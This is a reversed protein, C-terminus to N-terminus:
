CAWKQSNRGRRAYVADWICIYIYKSLNRWLRRQLWIIYILNYIYMNHWDCSWIPEPFFDRNESSKRTIRRESNRKVTNMGPFHPTTQPAAAFHVVGFNGRAMLSGQNRVAGEAHHVEGGRAWDRVAVQLWGIDGVCMRVARKSFCVHFSFGELNYPLLIGLIQLFCGDFHTANM